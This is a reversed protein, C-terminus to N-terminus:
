NNVLLYVYWFMMGVSSFLALSAAVHRNTPYRHLIQSTQYIIIASCFGIMAVVFGLGLTFGFLVGGAIAGLALFTMVILGTRLVSFDQKTIFVVATLAGFAAATLVVAQILVDGDVAFSSSQGGTMYFLYSFIIAYAGVGVMLGLYQLGKSDVRHAMTDGMWSAGIFLALVLLWSTSGMFTMVPEFFPSNWFLAMMAVCLFVAGTVYAYTKQIFAMREQPIADAAATEGPRLASRMKARKNGRQRSQRPAGYRDQPDNPGAGYPPQRGHKNQHWNGGQGRQGGWPNGQPNGDSGQNHNM